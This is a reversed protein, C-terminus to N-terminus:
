CRLAVAAACYCYTYDTMVKIVKIECKNLLVQITLNIYIVYAEM